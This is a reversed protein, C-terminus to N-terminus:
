SYWPYYFALVPKGNSNPETPPPVKVQPSAVATAKPSVTPTKKVGGTATATVDRQHVQAPIVFPSQEVTPVETPVSTPSSTTAQQGADTQCAAFVFLFLLFIFFHFRFTKRLNGMM